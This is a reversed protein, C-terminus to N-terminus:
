LRAESLGLHAHILHAPDPVRDLRTCPPVEGDETANVAWIPIRELGGAPHPTRRPSHPTPIPPRSPHCLYQLRRCYRITAFARAM